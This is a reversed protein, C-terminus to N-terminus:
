CKGNILDFNKGTVCAICIAATTSTYSVEACNTLNTCDTGLTYDQCLCLNSSDNYRMGYACQNCVVSGTQNITTNVCGLVTTCYNGALYQGVPCTCTENM